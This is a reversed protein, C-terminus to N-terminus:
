KGGGRSRLQIELSGEIIECGRYTQARQINDINGGSCRKPCEECKKCKRRENVVELEHDVPCEMVCSENHPIYPKAPLDPNSDLSIPKKISYCQDATVCRSHHIYMGEPCKEVCQRSGEPDISFHRCITCNSGTPGSCGGLCQDSCCEGVENCTRSGCSEPCIKQCYKANWCLTKRHDKPYIMLGGVRTPTTPAVTPCKQVYNTGNALEVTVETPCIPCANEKQNDQM